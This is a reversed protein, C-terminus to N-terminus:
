RSRFATCARISRCRVYGRKARAWRARGWHDGVQRLVALEDRDLGAVTSGPGIDTPEEAFAGKGESGGPNVVRSM